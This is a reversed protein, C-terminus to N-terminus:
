YLMFRSIEVPVTATPRIILMPRYIPLVDTADRSVFQYAGSVFKNVASDAAVGRVRDQSVKWGLNTPPSTIFDKVTKTVDLEIWRPYQGNWRTAPVSESTGVDLLGMAGALQWTVSTGAPDAKLYTWTVEGGAAAPRGDWEVNGAGEIWRRDKLVKWTRLDHAIHKDGTREGTAYLRLTAKKVLAATAAGWPVIDSVDFRILMSRHGVLGDSTDGEELRRLAGANNKGAEAILTTDSTAAYTPDPLLNKWTGTQYVWTGSHPLMSNQAYVTQSGAADKAYGGEFYIPAYSGTFAGRTLDYTPTAAYNPNWLVAMDYSATTPNTFPALSNWVIKDGLWVGGKDVRTVLVPTSPWMEALPLVEVLSVSTMPGLSQVSLTVTFTTMLTSSSSWTFTPTSFSRTVAGITNALYRSNDLLLLVPRHLVDANESSMFEFMGKVASYKNGSNNDPLGRVKDQSIKWGRNWSPIQLFTKTDSTVDLDVWTSRVLGFTTGLDGALIAAADTNGMLGPMEWAPNLHSFQSRWTVENPLAARGNVGTGAGQNWWKLLRQARINHLQATGTTLLDHWLRLQALAVSASTVGTEALSFRMLIKNHDLLPSSGSYGERLHDKGGMNNDWYAVTGAVVTDSTGTYIFSSGPGLLSGQQVVAQTGTQPLLSDNIPVRSKLKSALANESYAGEFRLPMYDGNWKPTLRYTVVRSGTGPWPLIKWEITGPATVVGNDSITDVPCHSPYKEVVTVTSLSVEKRPITISVNIPKGLEAGGAGGFSRVGVGMPPKPTGTVQLGTVKAQAVASASGGCIVVGVVCTTPITSMDFARYTWNQGGELNDYGIIILTGAIRQIRLEAPGNNGVGDANATFSEGVNWTDDDQAPRQQPYIRHAATEDSNGRIMIAANPSGPDLDKRVMLGVKAVNERAVLYDVTARVDFDGAMTLYTFALNDVKVDTAAQGFIESGTVIFTDDGKYYQSYWQMPQSGIKAALMPWGSAGLGNDTMGLLNQTAPDYGHDPVTTFYYWKLEPPNLWSTIWLKSQDKINSQSKGGVHDEELGNWFKGSFVLRNRLLTATTDVGYKLTVTQTTAPKSWVITRPKIEPILTVTTGASWILSGSTVSCGVPLTETTILPGTTLPIATLTVLGGLTSGATYISPLDRTVTGITRATTVATGTTVVNWFQMRAASQPIPAIDSAGGSVGLGVVVPGKMNPIPHSLYTLNSNGELTNFGGSVAMGQRELKMWASSLRNQPDPAPDDATEGNPNDRYQFSLRGDRRMVAGVYPSGPAYGDRIFIGGKADSDATDPPRDWGFRAEIAANGSIYKGLFRMEDLGYWMGEGSGTLEFRDDCALWLTAPLPSTTPLIDFTEQWDGLANQWGDGTTESQTAVLRVVVDGLIPIYNTVGLWRATGCSAAPSGPVADYKLKPIEGPHYTGTWVIQNTSGGTVTGTTTVIGTAIWGVPLTETTVMTGTTVVTTGTLTTVLASGSPTYSPSPTPGLQRSMVTLPATTSLTCSTSEVEKFNNAPLTPPTPTPANVLVIQDICQEMENHYVRLWYTGPRPVYVAYPGENGFTWTWSRTGSTGIRQVGSYPDSTPDWDFQLHSVNSSGGRPELIRAYWYYRGATNFKILWGVGAEQNVPGNGGGGLNGKDTNGVTGSFIFDESPGGNTLKYVNWLTADTNPHRDTNAGEVSDLLWCRQKTADSSNASLWGYNEAEIVVKGAKEEYIVPGPSGIATYNQTKNAIQYNYTANQPQFTLAGALPVASKTPTVTGLFAGIIATTYKGDSGTVPPNKGLGQMVVGSVAKGKTDKIQGSITFGPTATYNTTKKTTVNTYSQKVPTFIWGSLTPTATGTWGYAVGTTCEGKNNSGATSVGLGVMSVGNLGLGEDAPAVNKRKVKSTIPVLATFDQRGAARPATTVKDPYFLWDTKTPTVTGTFSTPVVASYNGNALTVTKSSGFSSMAFTIDVGGVGTPGTRTVRGSITIPAGAWFNEGTKNGTLKSYSRAAPSFVLGVKTPTTNGTFGVPVTTSSYTGDSATVVGLGNITVGAVGVIATGDWQTVKGSITLQSGTYNQGLFNIGIATYTRSGPSFKWGSKTPTVTGTWGTPVTTSTYKGSADTVPAPTGLGTLEVGSIPTGDAMVVTGSISRFQASAEGVFAAVFLLVMAVSMSKTLNKVM